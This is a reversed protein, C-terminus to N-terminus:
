EKIIRKVLEGYAPRVIAIGVLVGIITTIAFGRLLGFGVVMLPLMAAVVTGASGFITFFANKLKERLTMTQDEGRLAQDIIMIQSNIGSGITAIIGAIAPLDITWGITSAVGLIILVESTSIIIMPLVIKTKRYRLWVVCVVGVLAAFGALLASKLFGSGLTPSINDVQVIKVETPLAGSRLVAQLQARNKSADTISIGSGSISIETESKGKLNSAITLSDMLGDDLYLLIPSSLIAQGPIVDLNSTVWAFKNAGEPSLQIAFSWRYSGDPQIEIRSRQPDYFVTRIDNGNFVTATMNARSQSVGEIKLLVGAIDVSEGVNIEKGNITVSNNNVTFAYAKDLKLSGEGNTTRLLLPIESEFKGQNELLARLEEPNGGAISIEIFGKGEHYIPRFVSERLGYINIRTELTSLVQEITENDTSNPEIVARVGGKLDLGFQLNNSSAESTKIGLTGNAQAFKTGKSTEIKITGFYPQEEFGKQVTVDNIKYIIEGAVINTLSSNKSVSEVAYGHANFNFGILALSIVICAVWLMVRVNKLMDRPLVFYFAIIVAPLIIWTSNVPVFFVAIAALVLVVAAYLLNNTTM